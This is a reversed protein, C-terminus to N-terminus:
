HYCVKIAKIIGKAIKGSIYELHSSWKLANDVVVGLFKTEKFENIKCNDIRIDKISRSRHKPTFLM